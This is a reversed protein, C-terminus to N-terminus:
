LPPSPRMDMGDDGRREEAGFHPFPLIHGRIIKQQNIRVLQSCHGGLDSIHLMMMRNFPLTFLCSCQAYSTTHIWMEDWDNLMYSSPNTNNLTSNGDARKWSHFITETQFTFFCRGPSFLISHMIQARTHSIYETDRAADKHFPPRPSYCSSGVFCTPLPM